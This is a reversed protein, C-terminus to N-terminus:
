HLARQDLATAAKPPRAKRLQTTRPHTQHITRTRPQLSDRRTASRILTPLTPGTARYGYAAIVITDQLAILEHSDSVSMKGLSHASLGGASDATTLIRRGKDGLQIARGDRHGDPRPSNHFLLAGDLVYYAAVDGPTHSTVHTGDPVRVVTMACGPLQPAIRISDQRTRHLEAAAKYAPRLEYAIADLLSSLKNTRQEVPTPNIFEMWMQPILWNNARRLLQAYEATQRGDQTFMTVPQRTANYGAPVVRRTRIM